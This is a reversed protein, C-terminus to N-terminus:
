WWSMSYWHGSSFSFSVLTVFVAKGLESLFRKMERLCLLVLTLCGLARWNRKELLYHGYYDDESWSCFDIDSYALVLYHRTDTQCDVVWLTCIWLCWEPAAQGFSRNLMTPWRANEILSWFSVGLVQSVRSAFLVFLVVWVGVLVCCVFLCVFCAALALPSTFFTLCHSMRLARLLQVGALLWMTWSRLVLWLLAQM